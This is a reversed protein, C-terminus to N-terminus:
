ELFFSLHIGLIMLSSYRVNILTWSYSINKAGEVRILGMLLSRWSGGSSMFTAPAPPSLDLMGFNQMYVNLVRPAGSCRFRINNNSLLHQNAPPMWRLLTCKRKLSTFSQANRLKEHHEGDHEQESTAGWGTCDCRVRYYLICIGCFQSLNLADLKM